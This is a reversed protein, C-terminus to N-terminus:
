KGNLNSSIELFNFNEKRSFLFIVATQQDFACGLSEIELIGFQHAVKM